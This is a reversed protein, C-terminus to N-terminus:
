CLVFTIDGLSASFHRFVCGRDDPLLAALSYESSVFAECSDPQIRWAVYAAVFGNLGAATLGGVRMATLQITNSFRRRKVVILMVLVSVEVSVVLVWPHCSGFGSAIVALLFKLQFALM